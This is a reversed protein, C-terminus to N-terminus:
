CSTIRNQTAKTIKLSAIGSAINSSYDAESSVLKKLQVARQERQLQRENRELMDKQLDQIRQASQRARLAAFSQSDNYDTDAQWKTLASKQTTSTATTSIDSTVKVARKKVATESRSYSQDVSNDIELSNILKKTAQIRNLTSQVQDEFENELKIARHGTRTDLITSGEIVKSARERAFSLDEDEDSFNYKSPVVQRVPSLEEKLPTVRDQLKSLISSSTTGNVSYKEDLRDIASKYM